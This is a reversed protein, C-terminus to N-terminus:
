FGMLMGVRARKDWKPIKIGSKQLKQELVYARLGWTHFKNKQDNPWMKGSSFLELPSYTSEMKPIRNFLWAAHDMAM